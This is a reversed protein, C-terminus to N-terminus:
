RLMAYNIMYNNATLIQRTFEWLLENALTALDMGRSKAYRIPSSPYHTYCALSSCVMAIIHGQKKM